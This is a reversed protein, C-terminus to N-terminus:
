SVRHRAIVLDDDDTGSRDTQDGGIQEDVFPDRDDHELGTRIQWAIEAGGGEMVGASRGDGRRANTWECRPSIQASRAAAASRSSYM